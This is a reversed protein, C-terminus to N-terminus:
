RHKDNMVFGDHLQLLPRCLHAAVEDLHERVRARPVGRPWEVEGLNEGREIKVHHVIAHLLRPPLMTIPQVQAAAVHHRDLVNGHRM